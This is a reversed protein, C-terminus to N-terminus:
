QVREVLHKDIWDSALALLDGVLQKEEVEYMALVNPVLERISKGTTMEKWVHTAMSDLGYYIGGDLDLLVIEGDFERAFVNERPRVHDNEGLTM